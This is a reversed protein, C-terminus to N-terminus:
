ADTDAEEEQATGEISKLIADVQAQVSFDLASFLEDTLEADPDDSAQEYFAEAPNEATVEEETEEAEQAPAPEQVPPRTQEPKAQQAEDATQTQGSVSEVATPAKRKVTRRIGFAM